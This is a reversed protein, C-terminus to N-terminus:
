TGYNEAAFACEITIFTTEVLIFYNWGINPEFM